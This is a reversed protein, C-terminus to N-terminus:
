PSVVSVSKSILSILSVFGIIPVAIISAAIAIAACTIILFALLVFAFVREATDDLAFSGAKEGDGLTHHIAGARMNLGKHHALNAM